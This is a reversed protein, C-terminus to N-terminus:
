KYSVGKSPITEYNENDIYYLITQYFVEYLTGIDLLCMREKTMSVKVIIDDYNEGDFLFREAVYKLLFEDKQEYIRIRCQGLKRQLLETLRKAKQQTYTM